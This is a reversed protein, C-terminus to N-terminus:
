SKCKCRLRRHFYKCKTTQGLREGSIGAAITSDGDLIVPGNLTLTNNPERAVMSGNLHVTGTFIATSNTGNVNFAAWNDTPLNYGNGNFTFNNAYTISTGGPGDGWWWMFATPQVTVASTGFALPVQADLGGQQIETTGTYTSVGFLDLYNIGTKVVSIPADSTIISRIQLFGTATITPTGVLKLPGGTIQYATGGPVPPVATGTNLADTINQASVGSPAITLIGPATGGLIANSGDIWATNNSANDTSWVMSTTDWTGGGGSPVNWYLDAAQAGFSSLLLVIVALSVSFYRFLNTGLVQFRM